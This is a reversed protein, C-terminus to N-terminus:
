SISKVPQSKRIRHANPPKCGIVLSADRGAGLSHCKETPKGKLRRAPPVSPNRPYCKGDFASSRRAQEVDDPSPYPSRVPRTHAVAVVGALKPGSWHAVKFGNTAALGRLPDRGTSSRSVGHAGHGRLWIEGRAASAHLLRIGRSRPCSWARPEFTAPQDGAAATLPILLLLSALALLRFM